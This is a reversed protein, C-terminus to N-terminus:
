EVSGNHSEQPDNPPRLPPPPPLSSAMEVDEASPVATVTTSMEPMPDAFVPPPLSPTAEVTSNDPAVTAPPAADVKDTTSHDTTENLQKESERASEGNMDDDSAKKKKKKSVSAKRAPKKVAVDDKSVDSSQQEMEMDSTLTTTTANEQEKDSSKATAPQEKKPRPKRPKPPSMPKEKQQEGTAEERQQPQTDEEMPSAQQESPVSFSVSPVKPPQESPEIEMQNESGVADRAVAAAAPPQRAESSKAQGEAQIAKTLENKLIDDYWEKYVATNYRALVVIDSVVPLLEYAVDGLGVQQLQSPDRLVAKPPGGKETVVTTTAFPGAEEGGLMDLEGGGQAGMQDSHGSGVSAHLNELYTQLLGQLKKTITQYVPNEFALAKAVMSAIVQRKAPDLTQPPSTQYQQHQQQQQRGQQQYHHYAEMEVAEVIAEQLQEMTTSQHRILDFLREKLKNGEHGVDATPSGLRPAFAKAVQMLSAVFAIGRIQNQLSELRMADLDFTEPLSLGPFLPVPSFLLNLQAHTIARNRLVVKQSPHAAAYISALSNPTTTAATTDTTPATAAANKAQTNSQEKTSGQVKPLPASVDCHHAAHILWSKTIELSKEKNKLATKFAQQEYPVAQKRLYPRLASIRFRAMDLLMEDLLELINRLCGVLIKTRAQIAVPQYQQQEQEQPHHSSAEGAQATSPSMSPPPPSPSSRPTTSVTPPGLFQLSDLTDRIAKIEGDRVPACLKAMVSVVFKMAHEVDFVKKEVQQQVLVPDLAENVERYIVTKRPTLENLRDRIAALLIPIWQALLGQEADREIASFVATIAMDQVQAQFAEVAEQGGSGDIMARAAQMLDAAADRQEQQQQQTDVSQGSQHQQKQKERRQQRQAAREESTIHPEFNFKPNLAIEHLLQLNTMAYPKDFSQLFTDVEDKTMRAPMRKGVMDMAQDSSLSVRKKAAGKERGSTATAASTTPKTTAASSSTSTSPAMVDDEQIKPQQGEQSQSPAKHTHVMDSSAQRVSPSPPDIMMDRSTSDNRQRKNGASMAVDDLHPPSSTAEAANHASLDTITSDSSHTRVPTIGRREYEGQAAAAALAPDHSEGFFIARVRTEAEPGGIKRAKAILDARQADVRPRWEAEAAPDQCVTRWLAEIQQAHAVLSNVLRQLDRAKWAMMLEYYQTWAHDFQQALSAARTEAETETETEAIISQSPQEHQSQHVPVTARFWTELAELLHKASEVLAQFGDDDAEYELPLPQPSQAVLPTRLHNPHAIVMFASLFVRASNCLGEVRQPSSRQLRADIRTLAAAHELLRTAATQLDRSVMRKVLADYSLTVLDKPSSKPGIGIARQFLRMTKHTAKERRQRQVWLTAWELRPDDNNYRPTSSSLSAARPPITTVTTTADQSVSADASQKCVPRPPEINNNNNNTTTTTSRSINNSNNSSSSSSSSSSSRRYHFSAHGMSRTMGKSSSAEEKTTEEEVSAKKQQLFPERRNKPSGKDTAKTATTTKSTTTTTSSGKRDLVSSTSPSLTTSTSTAGATATSVANSTMASSSLSAHLDKKRRHHRRSPDNERSAQLHAKKRAFALVMKRDMEDGLRRRKVELEARQQQVVMKAHQVVYAASHRRAKLFSSRSREAAEGRDLMRQELLKRQRHYEELDQGIDDEEEAPSDTDELWTITFDDQQQQQEQQEQQQQQQQLRGQQIISRLISSAYSTQIAVMKPSRSRSSSRRNRRPPSHSFARNHTTTTLRSGGRAHGDVKGSSGRYGRRSQRHIRAGSERGHSLQLRALTLTTGELSKSSHALRAHNNNRPLSHHHLQHRHTQVSALSPEPFTSSSPQNPSGLFFFSPGSPKM